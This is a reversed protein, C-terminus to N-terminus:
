GILVRFTRDALANNAHTIVVAGNVRGTESVYLTGNGLEAAANATTPQLLVPSDARLRADSLTTSAANATLTVLTTRTALVQLTLRRLDREAEIRM